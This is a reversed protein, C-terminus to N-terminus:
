YFRYLARLSPSEINLLNSKITVRPNVNDPHKMAGSAKIPGAVFPQDVADRICDPNEVPAFKTM